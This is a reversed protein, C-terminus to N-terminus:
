LTITTEMIKVAGPLNSYIENGNFPRLMISVQRDKSLQIAPQVSIYHIFSVFNSFRCYSYPTLAVM